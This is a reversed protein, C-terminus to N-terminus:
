LGLTSPEFGGVSMRVYKELIEKKLKGINHGKTVTGYDFGIKQYFTYFSEKKIRLISVGTIKDIYTSCNIGLSRHMQALDAIMQASKSGGTLNGYDSISGEDNWFAKLFAIKVAKSSNEIVLPVGIGKSTSYTASFSIADEYALQSTFEIAYNTVNVGPRQYPTYNKLGYVKNMLAIFNWILLLSSNYYGLMCRAGIKSVRGDFFLHGMLRAKSENLASKKIQTPKAFRKVFKLQSHKVLKKLREQQLGSIPVNKSYKHVTSKCVHLQRSIERFSLGRKRLRVIRNALIGSITM